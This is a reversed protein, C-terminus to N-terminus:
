KIQGAEAAAILDDTIMLKAKRVDPFSLEWETGEMEVRITENEIGRLRGRFKRRGDYLSETEIKAEFGAYREYDKLSMLPRDLGPSSVELTYTGAIPDEVDMVASIARSCRACDEVTLARDEVPELMVQLCLDGKGSLDVRVISFGMDEITPEILKKIREALDM